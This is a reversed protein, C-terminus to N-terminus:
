GFNVLNTNGGSLIINNILQNMNYNKEKRQDLNHVLSILLESLGPNYKQVLIPNFLCETSKISEEYLDLPTGYPLVYPTPSTIGRKFCEYEIEYEM